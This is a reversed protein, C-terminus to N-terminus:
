RAPVAPRTKARDGETLLCQLGEILQVIQERPITCWSERYEMAGSVIAAVVEAQSLGFAVVHRGCKFRLIM